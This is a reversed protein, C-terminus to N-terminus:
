RDAIAAAAVVMAATSWIRILWYAFANETTLGGPCWLPSFDCGWPNENRLLIATAAKLAILVLVAERIAM